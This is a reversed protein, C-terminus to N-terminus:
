TCENRKAHSIIFETISVDAFRVSLICENDSGQPMRNFDAGGQLLAKIAELAGVKAALSLAPIFGNKDHVSVGSQLLHRVISGRNNEAAERLLLHGHLSLDISVAAQVFIDHPCGQLILNFARNVDGKKDQQFGARFVNFLNVNDPLM